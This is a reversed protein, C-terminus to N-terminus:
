GERKDMQRYAQVGRPLLMKSPYGHRPEVLHQGLSVNVCDYGTAQARTVGSGEFFPKSVAAWRGRNNQEHSREFILIKHSRLLRFDGKETM